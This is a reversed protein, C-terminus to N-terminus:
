RAAEWACAKRLLLNGWGAHCRHGEIVASLVRATGVLGARRRPESKGEMYHAYNILYHIIHKGEEM